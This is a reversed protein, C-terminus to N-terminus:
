ANPADPSVELTKSVRPWFGRIDGARVLVYEHGDEDFKEANYEGFMVKQGPVLGLEEMTFFRPGVQVGLGTSIIIGANSHQRYKKPVHVGQADVEEEDIVRVQIRDMIATFPGYEDDSEKKTLEKAEDQLGKLWKNYREGELTPSVLPSGDDFLNPM